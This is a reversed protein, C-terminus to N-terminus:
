SPPRNLELWYRVADALYHGPQRAEFRKVVYSNAGLRYSSQVDEERGSASLVVVPLARTRENRRLERLLEWGDMRPMRLDLLVVRPVAADEAPEDSGNLGLWDLAEVGDRCVAVKEDFGGRRFARRAIAVDNPDDEVLLVEVDQGDM